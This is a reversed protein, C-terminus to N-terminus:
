DTQPQRERESAPHIDKGFSKIQEAIREKPDWMKGPDLEVCLGVV